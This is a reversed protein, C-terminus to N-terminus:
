AAKQHSLEPISSSQHQVMLGITLKTLFDERAVTPTALSASARVIKLDM